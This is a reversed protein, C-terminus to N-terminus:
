ILRGERVAKDFFGRSKKYKSELIRADVLTECRQRYKLILPRRNRTSAVGGGNHEQLRREIDITSGIYRKNDKLSLLVYVCPKNM